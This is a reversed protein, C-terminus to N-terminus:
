KLLTTEWTGDASVTNVGYFGPVDGNADFDVSGTAGTYNIAKGAAIAAKTFAENRSPCWGMGFEEITNERFGREKYYALGVSRGEDSKLLQEAYWEAAFATVIYLSERRDRAEKQEPSVEEEEIEIQYREALWRLTEPYTLHEHEKLFDISDGGRGCGFCKYINRAPNVSFSPTKEQHFPCLGIMNAGRKKLQVFEGVVEEIRAAEKIRDVTQPSIM